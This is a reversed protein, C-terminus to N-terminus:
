CAPWGRGRCGCLPPIGRDLSARVGGRRHGIRTVVGHVAVATTVTARATVAPPAHRSRRAATWLAISEVSRTPATSTALESAGRPGQAASSRTDSACGEEPTPRTLLAAG